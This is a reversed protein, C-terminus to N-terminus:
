GVALLRHLHDTLDLYYIEDERTQGEDCTACPPSSRAEIFYCFYAVSGNDECFMSRGM